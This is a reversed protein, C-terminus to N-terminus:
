KYNDKNQFALRVGREPKYENPQLPLSKIRILICVRNMKIPFCVIHPLRFVPELLIYSYLRRQM